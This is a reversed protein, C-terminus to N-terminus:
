LDRNPAEYDVVCAFRAIRDPTTLHRTHPLATALKLNTEGDLNM